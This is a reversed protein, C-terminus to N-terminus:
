TSKTDEVDQAAEVIPSWYDHKWKISGRLWIHYLIANANLILLSLMNIEYSLM